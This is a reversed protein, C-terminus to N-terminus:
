VIVYKKFKQHFIFFFWRSSSSGTFAPPLVCSVRKDQL